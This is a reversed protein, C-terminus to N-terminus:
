KKELWDPVAAHLPFGEPQPANAAAPRPGKGELFLIDGNKEVQIYATFDERPRLTYGTEGTVQYERLKWYVKMWVFGRYDPREYWHHHIFDEWRVRKSEQPKIETTITRSYIFLETGSNNYIEVYRPPPCGVLMMALPILLLKKM